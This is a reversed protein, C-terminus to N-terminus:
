GLCQVQFKSNSLNLAETEETSHRKAYTKALLWSYINFGPLVLASFGRIKTLPVAAKEKHPSCENRGGLLEEHCDSPM